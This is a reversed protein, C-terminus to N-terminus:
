FHTKDVRATDNATKTRGAQPHRLTCHRSKGLNMLLFHNNYYVAHLVEHLSFCFDFM